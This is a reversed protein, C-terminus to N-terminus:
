WAGVMSLRSPDWRARAGVVVDSLCRRYQFEKRTGPPGWLLAGGDGRGIVLFDALNGVDKFILGSFVLVLGVHLFPEARVGTGCAWM